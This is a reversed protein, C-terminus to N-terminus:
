ASVVGHCLATVSSADISVILGVDNGAILKNMLCTQGEKSLQVQMGLFPAVDKGVVLAQGLACRALVSLGCPHYVSGISSVRERVDLPSPTSDNEFLVSASVSFGQSPEAVTQPTSECSKGSPSHPSDSALHPTTSRRAPLLTPAVPHLHSEGAGGTDRTSASPAPPVRKPPPSSFIRFRTRPTDGGKTPGVPSGTIQQTTSKGNLNHQPPCAPQAPLAPLAPTAPALPSPAGNANLAGVLISAVPGAERVSSHHPFLRPVKGPAAYNTGAAATADLPPPRLRQAPPHNPLRAAAAWQRIASNNSDESSVSACRGLARRAECDGCLSVPGEADASKTVFCGCQLCRGGGCGYKELAPHELPPADAARRKGALWPLGLCSPVCSAPRREVNRKAM